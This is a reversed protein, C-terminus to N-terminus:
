QGIIEKFHLERHCNACVLICKDLEEKVDSDFKKLSLSSIRIEKKSPDLHHFDLANNCKIYGCKCCKGGKYEICKQKFERQRQITMNSSCIRCYGHAKGNKSHIYFENINKTEKCKPCFREEEINEKRLNRFSHKTKLNYKRLWYQITSFSLNFKEAIKRISLGEEIYPTLEEVTM